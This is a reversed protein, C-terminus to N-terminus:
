VSFRSAVLKLSVALRQLDHAAHASAQVANNNRETMQAINEVHRAIDNSASSQEKLAASIHNIVGVVRLSGDKIQNIAETAQHALDVGADVQAVGTEMSAVASRTGSQIKEIMAAIEQTSQTTREALKRVEDAVVAFGRGQEGARAAEIAANLALLNTQDAIEKIVHVINSIQDSHEGLRRIVESSSRVSQAIQKMGQVTDHIVASGRESLQGSHASIDQADRAGQAVEAISVTMEEVTAAMASAAQSQESSSAAVQDSGSSLRSAAKVLVDGATQVESVASKLAAIFEHFGSLGGQKGVSQINLNIHGDI